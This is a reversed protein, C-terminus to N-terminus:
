MVEIEHNMLELKRGSPDMVTYMVDVWGEDEGTITYETGGLVNMKIQDDSRMVGEADWTCVVNGVVIGLFGEDEKGPHLERGCYGYLDVKDLRVMAGYKLVKITTTEM